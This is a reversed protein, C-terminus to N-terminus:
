GSQVSLELLLALYLLYFLCYDSGVIQNTAVCVCVCVCIYTCSAREDNGQARFNSSSTGAFPPKRSSLLWVYIYIAFILFLMNNSCGNGLLIELRLCSAM